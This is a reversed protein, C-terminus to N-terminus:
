LQNIKFRPIPGPWGALLITPIVLPPNQSIEPEDSELVFSSSGIHDSMDVYMSYM